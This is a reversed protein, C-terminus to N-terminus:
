QKRHSGTLFLRHWLQGTIWVFADRQRISTIGVSGNRRCVIVIKRNSGDLRDVVRIRGSSVVVVVGALRGSFISVVAMVWYFVVRQAIAGFNASQFRMASRGFIAGHPVVVVAMLILM